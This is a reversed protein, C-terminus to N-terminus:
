EESVRLRERLYSEPIMGAITLYGKEELERNLRTIIRSGSSLSQRLIKAVEEASLLGFDKFRTELYARSIKGRRVLYGDRELEDNLKSILRKATKEKRRILEAVESATLYEM